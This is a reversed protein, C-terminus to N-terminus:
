QLKDLLQLSSIFKLFRNFDPKNYSTSVVQLLGTSLLNQGCHNVQLVETSLKMEVLWAFSDQYRTTSLLDNELHCCVNQLECTKQQTSPDKHKSYHAILLLYYSIHLSWRFNM